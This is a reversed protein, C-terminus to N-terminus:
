FINAAAARSICVICDLPSYHLSLMCLIFHLLQFAAHWPGQFCFLICDLPSYHLSLLAAASLCCALAMSLLLPHVSPLVQLAPSAAMQIICQLAADVAAPAREM